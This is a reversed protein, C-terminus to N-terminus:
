AVSLVAHVDLDSRVQRGIEALIRERELADGLAAESRSRELALGAEAALAQLLALEAPTFDHREETTAVALVGIVRDESFMPVFAASKAGVDEVLGPNVIPSTVCDSVGVPLRERAATAIGSPPGELDLELTRWWDVEAGHQLAILGKASSEELLALGAFGIPVLDLVRELLARGVQVPDRARSLARSM